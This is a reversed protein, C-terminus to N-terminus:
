KGEEIIYETDIIICMFYDDRFICMGCEELVFCIRRTIRWDGDFGNGSFLVIEGEEGIFFTTYLM